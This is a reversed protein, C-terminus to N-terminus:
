VSYGYAKFSVNANSSFVYIGAASTIGDLVIGGRELVGNPPIVVNWELADNQYAGTNSVSISVSVPYANTNNAVVNITGGGIAPGGAYVLVSWTDAAPTVSSYYSSM